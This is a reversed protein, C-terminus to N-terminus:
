AKRNPMQPSRRRRVIEFMAIAAAPLSQVAEATPITVTRRCAELVRRSIGRREGGIVLAIREPLKASFLDEGEACAEAVTTVSKAELVELTLALDDALVLPLCESAGASSRAVVDRPLNSAHKELVVAAAGAALATRLITGLNHPDEVGAMVVLLVPGPAGAPVAEDLPTPTREALTLAVEVPEEGAATETEAREVWREGLGRPSGCAGARGAARAAAGDRRTGNGEFHYSRM